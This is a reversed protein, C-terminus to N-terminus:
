QMVLNNKSSIRKGTGCNNRYADYKPLLRHTGREISDKEASSAKEDNGCAVLVLLYFQLVRFALIQKM